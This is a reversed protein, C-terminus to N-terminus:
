ENCSQNREMQFHSTAYVEQNTIKKQIIAKGKKRSKGIAM